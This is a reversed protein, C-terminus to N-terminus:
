GKELSANDFMEINSGADVFEQQDVTLHTQKVTRSDLDLEFSVNVFSGKNVQFPPDLDTKRFMETNKGHDEFRIRFNKFREAPVRGNNFFSVSAETSRLDVRHDPELISLWEGSDKKLELQQITIFYPEASFVPKACIICIALFIVGVLNKDNRACRLLRHKIAFIAEPVVNGRLSMITM